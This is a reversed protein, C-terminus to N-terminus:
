IRIHDDNDNNNDFETYRIIHINDLLNFQTVSVFCSVSKVISFNIRYKYFCAFM